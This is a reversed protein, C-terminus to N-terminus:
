LWFPLFSQALSSPCLGSSKTSRIGIAPLLFIFDSRMGRFAPALSLSTFLLSSSGSFPSGALPLQRNSSAIRFKVARLESCCRSSQRQRVLTRRKLPNRALCILGHFHM